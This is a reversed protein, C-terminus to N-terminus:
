AGQARSPGEGAKNEEFRASLEAKRRLQVMRSKRVGTKRCTPCLKFGESKPQLRCVSCKEGPLQELHDHCRQCYRRRLRRPEKAEGCQLCQHIPNRQCLHCKDGPGEVRTTVELCHQCFTYHHALHLTSKDDSRKLLCLIIKAREQESNPEVGKLKGQKEMWPRAMNEMCDICFPGNLGNFDKRVLDAFVYCNPRFRYPTTTTRGCKLCQDSATQEVAGLQEANQRQQDLEALWTELVEATVVRSYDSVTTSDDTPVDSTDMLLKAVWTDYYEDGVDQRDNTATGSPNGQTLSGDDFDPVGRFADSPSGPTWDSLEDWDIHVTEPDVDVFVRPKASEPNM